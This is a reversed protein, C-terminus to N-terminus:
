GDIIGNCDNDKGDALEPAGPYVSADTDDCDPSGGVAQQAEYGDGDLDLGGPVPSHTCSGNAADYTDVTYPDGDDCNIPPPPPGPPPPPPTEGCVIDGSADFGTVFSGSACAQGALGLEGPDGKPGQTGTDGKQGQLGTAGAPGAPGQPGVQSWRTEAETKACGRIAGGAPDFIRVQGSQKDYCAHIVGGGDPITAYAVGGALAFIALLPILLRRM